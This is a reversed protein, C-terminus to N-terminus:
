SGVWTADIPDLSCNNNKFRKCNCKIEEISDLNKDNELYELLCCENNKYKEFLIKSKQKNIKKEILLINIKDILVNNYFTM